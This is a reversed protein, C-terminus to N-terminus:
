MTGHYAQRSRALAVALSFFAARNIWNLLAAAAPDGTTLERHQPPM